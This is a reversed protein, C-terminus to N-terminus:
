WFKVFASCALLAHHLAAAPDAECRARPRSARWACGVAPLMSTTNHKENRTSIVNAACKLATNRKLRQGWSLCPLENPICM